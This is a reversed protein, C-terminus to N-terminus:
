FEPSMSLLKKKIIKIIADDEVDTKIGPCASGMIKWNGTDCLVSNIFPWAKCMKPKVPHILCHKDWFICFGDEKQALLPKGGSIKCYKEVFTSPDTKIYGAINKIDKPTVYTGGYGECCQGCKTCEFIEKEFDYTM